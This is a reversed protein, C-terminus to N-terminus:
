DVAEQIIVELGMDCIDMASSRTVDWWQSSTYSMFLQLKMGLGVGLRPKFHFRLISM